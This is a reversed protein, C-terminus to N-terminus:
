FNTDLVILPHGGKLINWVMPAGIMGVGIFGVMMVM